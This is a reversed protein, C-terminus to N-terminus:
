IKIVNKAFSLQMLEIDKQLQSRESIIEQKQTAILKFFTKGNKGDWKEVTLLDKFVTAQLKYDISDLRMGSELKSYTENRQEQTDFELVHNVLFSTLVATEKCYGCGGAYALKKNTLAEIVSLTYGWTVNRTSKLILTTNLYDQKLKM